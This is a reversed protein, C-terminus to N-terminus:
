NNWFKMADKLYNEDMDNKWFYTDFNPQIYDKLVKVDHSIKVLNQRVKCRQIIKPIRKEINEPKLEDCNDAYFVKYSEENIYCLYVPLKFVSYYFDIQLLHFSDPREEPLKTTSWSRTGDKKIRGKRPFKCKDEIIIKGKLDVYGHVPIDIGDFWRFAEIEPKCKDYGPISQHAKHGNQIMLPLISKYHEFEDRQNLNPIIKKLKENVPIFM